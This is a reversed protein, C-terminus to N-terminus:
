ASRSRWWRSTPGSSTSPMRLREIRRDTQDLRARILLWLVLGVLIMLTGTIVSHLVDM